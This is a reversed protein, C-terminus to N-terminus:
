YYDGRRLLQLLFGVVIYLPGGRRITRSVSGAERNHGLHEVAPLVEACFGTPVAYTMDIKFIVGVSTNNIFFIQGM